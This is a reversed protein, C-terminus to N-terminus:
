PAPGGGLHQEWFGPLYQKWNIRVGSHPSNDVLQSGIEEGDANLVIVERPERRPEALLVFGGAVGDVRLPPGSEYTLEVSRVPQAAIGFLPVHGDRDPHQMAGPGLVELPAEGLDGAPIGGGVGTGGLDYGLGGSSDVWVFLKYGGAEAIVRPDKVFDNEYLFRPAQEGADLPRGPANASDGGLWGSFVGGVSGGAEELAARTVPVSYLTAAFLALVGVTAVILRSQVLAGGLRGPRKGQRRAQAVVRAVLDEGPELERAPAFAARVSSEDHDSLM